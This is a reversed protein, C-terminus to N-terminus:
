SMDLINRIGKSPYLKFKKNTITTSIDVLMEPAM